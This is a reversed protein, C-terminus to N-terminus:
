VWTWIYNKPLFLFTESCLKPYKPKLFLYVYWPQGSPQICFSNTILNSCSLHSQLIEGEAAGRRNYIIKWETTLKRSFVYGNIVRAYIMKWFFIIKVWFESSVRDEILKHFQVCLHRQTSHRCSTFANSTVAPRTHMIEIWLNMSASHRIFADIFYVIM